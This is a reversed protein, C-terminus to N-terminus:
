NCSVSPACFLLCKSIVVPVFGLQCECPEPRFSGCNGARWGKGLGQQPFIPCDEALRNVLLYVGGYSVDEGGKVSRLHMSRPSHIGCIRLSGAAVGTV